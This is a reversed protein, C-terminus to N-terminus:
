VARRLGPRLAFRSTPLDPAAPTAFPTYRLSRILPCRGRLNPEASLPLRASLNPPSEAAGARGALRGPVLYLCRRCRLRARLLGGASGASPFFTRRARLSGGASRSLHRSPKPSPQANSVDWFNPRTMRILGLVCTVQCNSPRRLREFTEFTYLDRTLGPFLPHVCM